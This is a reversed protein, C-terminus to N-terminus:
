VLGTVQDIVSNLDLIGAYHAGGVAGGSIILLLFFRIIWRGKQKNKTKVPPLALGSPQFPPLEIGEMTPIPAGPPPPMGPLPPLAPPEPEPEELTPYLADLDTLGPAEPIKGM